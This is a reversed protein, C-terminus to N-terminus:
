FAPDFDADGEASGFAAQILDVDAQDVTGDANYDFEADYAQAGGVVLVFAAVVFGTMLLIQRMKKPEGTKLSFSADDWGYCVAKAIGRSKRGTPEDPGRAAKREDKRSIPASM